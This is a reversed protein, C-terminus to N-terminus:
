REPRDLTQLVPGLQRETAEFCRVAAQVCEALPREGLRLPYADSRSLLAVADLDNQIWARGLQFAASTLHIEFLEPFARDHM